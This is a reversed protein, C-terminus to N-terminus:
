VSMTDWPAPNSESAASVPSHVEHVAAGPSVAGSEMEQQGCEMDWPAPSSESAASVPSYVENLAAGASLTGADLTRQGYGAATLKVVPLAPQTRARRAAAVLAAVVTVM